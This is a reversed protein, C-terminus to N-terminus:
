EARIVNGALDIEVFHRVTGDRYASCQNAPDDDIAQRPNHAVDAVWDPIAQNTLCPGASLDTGELLAKRWLEQAKVIALDKDAQAKIQLDAAGTVIEGASFTNDNNIGISEPRQLVWYVGVGVAIMIIIVIIIGKSM